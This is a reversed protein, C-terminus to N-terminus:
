DFLKEGQNPPEFRVRERLDLSEVREVLNLYYNQDSVPGTIELTWDPYREALRSFAEVLVHINKKAAIRGV